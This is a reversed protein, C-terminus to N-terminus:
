VLKLLFSMVEMASFVMGLGGLWQGLLLTEYELLLYENSRHFTQWM